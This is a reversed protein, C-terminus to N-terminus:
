KLIYKYEQTRITFIISLSTTDLADAPLEIYYENKKTVKSSTIENSNIKATKVIGDVAYKVEGFYEIFDYLDNIDVSPNDYVLEGTIKLLVKDYNTNLNPKLYEYSEYCKGAYCHNYSIKFKDRIDFSDIHLSYNKLISDTFDIDEGMMFTQTSTNEMLNVYNIKVNTGENKNDYSNKNAYFFIIDNDMIQKPIQYLLIIDEFETGIKGDQYVNGFDKFKDKNYTIPIFRYAGVIIKTTALDLRSGNKNARIKAKLILYCNDDIVNGEYDKDTLYSDEIKLTFGNGSFFVGQNLTPAKSIFNAYVFYFALSAIGIFFINYLAKNEKYSYMIYRKRKKIKKLIDNKDFNLEIEFEERDAEDIELEKLDEKFNFKKIDFGIARISVIIVSVFQLAFSLTILDRVLRIARIDLITQSLTVLTSRSVFISVLVYVYLAINIGYFVSPKNKVIMVVLVILTVGIILIPMLVYSSPILEYSLDQGVMNVMDMAYENFFNLLTRTKFVTYLSLFALIIHILRFHKILFAYPKRLIM